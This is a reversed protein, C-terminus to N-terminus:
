VKCNFSPAISCYLLKTSPVGQLVQTEDSFDFWIMEYNKGTLLDHFQDFCSVQIIMFHDVFESLNQSSACHNISSPEWLTLQWCLWIFPNNVSSLYKGELIAIFCSITLWFILYNIKVNKQEFCVWIECMCLLLFVALM